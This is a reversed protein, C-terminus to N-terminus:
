GVGVGAFDVYDVYVRGVVGAVFVEDIVVIVNVRLIGVAM